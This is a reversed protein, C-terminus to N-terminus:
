ISKLLSFLKNFLESHRYFRKCMSQEGISAARYSDIIFISPLPDLAPYLAILMSYTTALFPLEVDLLSLTFIILLPIYMLLVPVTAQFVLAYFLQLQLRKAYGSVNVSAFIKSYCRVGFYVICAISPIVLALLISMGCVSSYNLYPTGNEDLPYFYPGVYVVDNMSLDFNELVSNRIFNTMGDSESIFILCSVTWILCFVVPILFWIIAFRSEFYRDRTRRRISGYRYIFHVGFLALSFGYFGCYVALVYKNVEHSFISGRTSMLVLFSSGRLHVVPEAPWCIMTYFIEIVSIYLMMYKYTGLQSPSRNRILLILFTNIFISQIGFIRQFVSRFSNM